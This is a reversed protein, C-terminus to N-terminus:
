KQPNTRLSNAKQMAQEAEQAKGANALVAALNQWLTPDNPALALAKRVYEEAKPLNGTMAYSIGLSGYNDASERKFQFIAREMLEIGKTPNGLDRAYVKALLETSMIHTPHMKLVEELAQQASKGDMKHWAVLGVNYLATHFKPNIRCAERFHKDARELFPKNKPDDPNQLYQQLQTNAYYYQMKASNPATKIDAAFLTDNSKWDLSRMLTKPAYYLSLAVLPLAWISLTFQRLNEKGSWQVLAGVLLMLAGWSPLYVFRDAMPAGINFLINTTPALPLLYLWVGFGLASRRMVLAWLGWAGALAYLLWVLLSLPSSLGVFPIQNFSYDASLSLPLVSLQAYKGLIIGITGFKESFDSQVFPNEMIDPNHAGFGGVMAYRLAFYGVAVAAFSGAVIPLFRRKEQEYFVWVAAPALVVFAFTHEKSLMSLFFLPLAALLLAMRGSRLFGDLALLSAVVLLMAMVEDRGKINAVVETHVPHLAFLVAVWFAVAEGQETPLWRRLLKYLLVASIAFFLVNLFHGVAPNLGFFQHEVAFMVLSLPRYRGGSLAMSENGYIGDFFDRTALSKIGAFGQKTFQNEVIVISDDFAFGHGLTLAYVGFALLFILLEQWFFSRKTSSSAGRLDATPASAVAPSAPVPAAPQPPTTQPQPTNKKNKAM